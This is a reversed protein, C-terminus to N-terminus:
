QMLSSASRSAARHQLITKVVRTPDRRLECEWVRYVSFGLKGLETNAKRDRNRNRQFKTRWFKSRTKPIHGCIPCGHWFCGDVFVALKEKSFLFDPKGPLTRPHMVFGRIGRSVLAMQLKAETSKNGKGRIASMVRSRQISVSTFAGDLLTKRLAREM